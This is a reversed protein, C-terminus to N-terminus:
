IAERQKEDRILLSKTCCFTGSVEYRLLVITDKLNVFIESWLSSQYLLIAGKLDTRKDFFTSNNTM